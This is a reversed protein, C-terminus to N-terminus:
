FELALNLQIVRGASASTVKGFNANSRNTNPGGWRVFNFPNEVDARLMASVRESIRTRKGISASESKNTWGRAWDLVRATNGLEFSSPVAFAASNLYLDGAGPDFDRPNSQLYVPQGAVYNARKGPYGLASLNNGVSISLANGSARRVFGVIQWGGVLRGLTGGHRLFPKDPGFPLEYAFSCVFDHPPGNTSVSIEGARNLPYQM